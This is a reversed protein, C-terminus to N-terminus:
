NKPPRPFFASTKQKYPEFDSRRLASGEESIKIGTFQTLFVYMTLPCLLAFYGLPYSILMTSIGMWFSWEFFYNPHRSYRWLGHQCTKGSNSKNLLFSNLQKDALSEGLISILSIFIGLILTANIQISDSWLLLRQPLVLLTVLLANMIFIFFSTKRWNGQAKIKIREYRLDEKGRHNLLRQCLHSSLRFSWMFYLLSLLTIPKAFSFSSKWFRLHDLSWMGISAAWFVDVWSVRAWKTCLIWACFFIIFNVSFVYFLDFLAGM